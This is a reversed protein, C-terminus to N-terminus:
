LLPLISTSEIIDGAETEQYSSHVFLIGQKEPLLRGSPPVEFVSSSRATDFLAM